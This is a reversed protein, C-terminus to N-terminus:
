RAPKVAGLKRDAFDLIRRWYDRNLVHKEDRRYQVLDGANADTFAEEGRVIGSGVLGRGGLFRYVKDARQLSRLANDYNAWKDQDGETDLLPRPAILAVLLHQDIPLNQEKGGGFQPFTDNFWHPFSRNIREVTEQDNDRNMAMGGTGSQHPVALAIREDFAAALLTTKGLRSHGVACVRSKDIDPHTVLYDVARSLGWAWARITGWDHPGLQQQGSPLYHPHIGDTLDATDPDIDGNYFTALAYGREVLLDPCWVNAQSGRGKETAHDNEVGACFKYIWQPPIAIQADDVVTHNGCFNLGVFVPVPGKRENPVILLLHIPPASAPGFKLTVERLTAQGSLAKADTRVITAVVKELAAPAKGYMYHEFLAKLEPRRKNIWDEKSRVPTGDFMLLPDPPEARMPLRDAPPFENALATESLVGTDAILCLLCWWVGLIRM